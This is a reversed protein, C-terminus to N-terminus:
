NQWLFEWTTNINHSIAKSDLWAAILTVFVFVMENNNEHACLPNCSTTM